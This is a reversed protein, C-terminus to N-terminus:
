SNLEQLRRQVEAAREKMGMRKISRFPKEEPARFAQTNVSSQTPKATNRPQADFMKLFVKPHKTAMETADEISLGNDGAVKQVVEDLKDGYSQVLADRVMNANAQRQQAETMQQQHQEFARLADAIVEDKSLQPTAEANGSSDREALKNLVDDINRQQRLLEEQKAILDTSAKYDNELKSIYEQASTVHREADEQTKFARDGVKLFVQEESGAQQQEAQQNNNETSQTEGNAQELFSM